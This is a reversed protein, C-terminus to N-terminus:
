PTAPEFGTLGVLYFALDSATETSVGPGGRESETVWLTVWSMRRAAFSPAATLPDGPPALNVRNCWRHGM